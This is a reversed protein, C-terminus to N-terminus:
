RALTIEITNGTVGTLWTLVTLKLAQM